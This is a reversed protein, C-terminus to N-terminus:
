DASDTREMESVHKSNKRKGEVSSKDIFKEGRCKLRARTKMVNLHANYKQLIGCVFFIFYNNSPLFSINKLQARFFFHSLLKSKIEYVSV